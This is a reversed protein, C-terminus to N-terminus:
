VASPSCSSSASRGSCRRRSARDLRGVHDRDVLLDQHGDAGRHDTHGGHLLRPCEREMGVTYMHHAWVVFGVVGISVMAYAMGLYGFIPKKSFTSVIQSVIGFAPLIM